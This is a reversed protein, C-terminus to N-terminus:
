SAAVPTRAAGLNAITPRRHMMAPPRSAAVAATGAPESKLLRRSHRRAVAHLADDMDIQEQRCEESCFAADGKYMFIDRSRLICNKCLFCSDLYHHRRPRTEGAAPKVRFFRSAVKVYREEEEEVALAATSAVEKM